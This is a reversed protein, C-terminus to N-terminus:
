VMIVEDNRQGDVKPQGEAKTKSMLTAVFQVVIVIPKGFLILFVDTYLM